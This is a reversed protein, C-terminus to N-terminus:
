ILADTDAGKSGRTLGRQARHGRVEKYGNISVRVWVSSMKSHSIYGTIQSWSHLWVNCIVIALPPPVQAVRYIAALLASTGQSQIKTWHMRVSHPFDCIHRDADSGITNVSTCDLFEYPSELVAEAVASSEKQYLHLCDVQSALTDSSSPCWTDPLDIQSPHLWSNWYIRRQTLFYM